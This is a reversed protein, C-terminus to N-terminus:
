LYFDTTLNLLRANLGVVQETDVPIEILISQGKTEYCVEMIEKLNSLDPKVNYGDWGHAKAAQVFDINPM